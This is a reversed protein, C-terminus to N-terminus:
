AAGQPCCATARCMYRWDASRQCELGGTAKAMAVPQGNLAQSFAQSMTAVQAVLCGSRFSAEDRRCSPPSLGVALRGHLPMAGLAQGEALDWHVGVATFALM